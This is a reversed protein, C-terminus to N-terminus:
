IRAAAGPPSGTPIFPGTRAIAYEAASKGSPDTGILAEMTDLVANTPAVGTLRDHIRRAQNRETQGAGAPLATTLLVAALSLLLTKSIEM